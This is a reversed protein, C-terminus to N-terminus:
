RPGLEDDTSTCPVDEEVNGLIDSGEHPMLSCCQRLCNRSCTRGVTKSFNGLIDVTCIM